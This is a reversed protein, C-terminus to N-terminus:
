RKHANVPYAHLGINGKNETSTAPRINRWKNNAKNGDRHDIQHPPWKGTVYFYALRHALYKKGYLGIMSKPM